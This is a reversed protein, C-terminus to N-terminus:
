NGSVAPEEKKAESQKEAESIVEMIAEIVKEDCWEPFELKCNDM